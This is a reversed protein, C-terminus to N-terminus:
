DGAVFFLWRGDPAFGARYFTYSGYLKMEEVDGATVIKFLEVRQPATLVELPVAFFYPFVYIESPTGPSLHVYGADLIELLIAMIEQGEEDGSIERLFDIPDEGTEGFSIQTAGDGLGLLPRLREPDGSRCAEMILERMRQVEPPLLTTDYLIEPIPEAPPGAEGAAEGPMDQEDGSAPQSPDPLPLRQIPEPLPVGIEPEPALTEDEEAAPAPVAPEPQIESLALLPSATKAAAPAACALLTALSLFLATSATHPQPPMIPTAEVRDFDQAARPPKSFRDAAHGQM